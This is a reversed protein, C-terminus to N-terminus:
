SLRCLACTGAHHQTPEVANRGAQRELSLNRLRESQKHAHPGGLGM